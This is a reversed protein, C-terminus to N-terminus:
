YIASNPSLNLFIKVGSRSSKHRQWNTHKNISSKRILIIDVRDCTLFSEKGNEKQFGENDQTIQPVETLCGRGRKEGWQYM